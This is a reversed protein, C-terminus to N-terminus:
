CFIMEGFPGPAHGRSREVGERGHGPEAGRGGVRSGASLRRRAGAASLHRVCHFRVNLANSRVPVPTEHRESSDLACAQSASPDPTVQARNRPFGAPGCGPNTQLEPHWPVRFQLCIPPVRPPLAPPSVRSRLHTNGGLRRSGPPASREGPMLERVRGARGPCFRRLPRLRLFCGTKM